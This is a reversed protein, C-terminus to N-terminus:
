YKFLDGLSDCKGTARNLANLVKSRTNLTLRRVRCARSVMKQTMEMPACVELDHPKVQHERMIQAIPQEGLNRKDDPNM